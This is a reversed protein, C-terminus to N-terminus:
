NKCIKILDMSSNIASPVAPWIGNDIKFYIAANLLMNIVDDERCKKLYPYNKDIATIFNLRDEETKLSSHKYDGNLIDRYLELEEFVELNKKFSSKLICSTDYIDKINLYSYLDESINFILIYERDKNVNIKNLFVFLENVTFHDSRKRPIYIDEFRNEIESNAPFRNLVNNVIKRTLKSEDAKFYSSFSNEILGPLIAAHNYYNLEIKVAPINDKVKKQKPIYNFVELDFCEELVQDRLEIIRSMTENNIRSRSCSSWFMEKGSLKDLLEKKSWKSVKNTRTPKLCLEQLRELNVLSKEILDRSSIMLRINDKYIVEQFFRYLSRLVGNYVQNDRFKSKSDSVKNETFKEGTYISLVRNGESEVINIDLRKMGKKKEYSIIDGIKYKATNLGNIMDSSLMKEITSIINEKAKDTLGNKIKAM